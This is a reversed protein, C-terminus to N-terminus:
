KFIKEISKQIDDKSEDLAPFIFPSPPNKESGFEIRETEEGDAGIKVLNEEQVSSIAINEKPSLEEARNKTIEGAEYLSRNLKEESQALLSNMKKIVTDTGKIKM